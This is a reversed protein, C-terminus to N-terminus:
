TSCFLNYFKSFHQTFLTVIVTVSQGGVFIEEEQYGVYSFVLVTESSPVEISYNGDIDTITGEQTDKIVINVGPLGTQDTSETVQGTIKLSQQVDDSSNDANRLTPSGALLTGSITTLLVILALYRGVLEKLISKDKM